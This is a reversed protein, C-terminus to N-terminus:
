SGGGDCAGGDSGSDACGSSGDGAFASSDVAILPADSTGTHRASSLRSRGIAFLVLLLAFGVAFALLVINM